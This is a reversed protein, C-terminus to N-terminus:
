ALRFVTDSTTIVKGEAKEEIGALTGGVYLAKAKDVAEVIVSLAVVAVVIVALPRRWRRIMRAKM